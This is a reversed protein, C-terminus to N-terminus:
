RLDVKVRAGANGDLPWVLLRWYPQWGGAASTGIRITNLTYTPVTDATAWTTSDTGVTQVASWTVNDSSWQYRVKIAVSDNSSDRATYINALAITTDCPNDTLPDVTFPLILTDTDAAMNGHSDYRLFAVGSIKVRNYKLTHQTAPAFSFLSFVLATLALGLALTTTIISRKM